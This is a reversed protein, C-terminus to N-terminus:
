VGLKDQCHKPNPAYQLHITPAFLGPRREGFLLPFRGGSFPCGYIILLFNMYVGVSM